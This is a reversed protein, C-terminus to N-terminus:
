IPPSFLQEPKITRSEQLIDRVPASPVSTTSSRLVLNTPLVHDQVPRNNLLDLLMEMALQGIRLKPQHITTLPPTVFQALEIDDFGVLSLQEPVSIGMLRCALLAGVAISDNFCFVATVGAAILDPLLQEGDRVDDSHYRHEKPAIRIWDEAVKINADTLADRYGKLRSQNSHPRNGAGIYGIASHGLELLHDIAIRAGSYDDISVSHFHELKAEAQQNIVVTPVDLRALHKAHKESLQTATVIIGDVRRRHFNEIVDVERDADNNSVSLFLSLHYQQAVEEIGRVVRGVFPDAITTVVLGITNTRQGRLSQAVANPVYGMEQALKQVKERVELSILPSDRLARSVTTHSVGVARAVDQISITRKNM